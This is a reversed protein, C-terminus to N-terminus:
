GWVNLEHYGNWDYRPSKSRAWGGQSLLRACRVQLLSESLERRVWYLITSLSVQAGMSGINAICVSSHLWQSTPECFFNREQIIWSRWKAVKFYWFCDQPLPLWNEARWRSIWREFLHFVKQLITANIDFSWTMKLHCLMRLLRRYSGLCMRFFMKTMHTSWTMLCSPLKNPLLTSEITLFSSYRTKRKSVCLVSVLTWYLTSKM